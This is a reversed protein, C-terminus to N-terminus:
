IRKKSMTVDSFAYNIELKNRSNRLHLRNCHGMLNLAKSSINSIALISLIDSSWIRLASEWVYFTAPLFIYTAMPAFCRTAALVILRGIRHDGDAPKM